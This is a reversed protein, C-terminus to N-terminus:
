SAIRRPSPGPSSASTTSTPSSRPARPAPPRAAVGRLPRWRTSCLPTRWRRARRTPSRSRVSSPGPTAFHGASGSSSTTAASRTCSTTTTLPTPSSLTSRATPLPSSPQRDWTSRSVRSRGTPAIDQHPRVVLNAIGKYADVVQKVTWPLLASAGDLEAFTWKFSFDHRDFVNRVTMRSAHWSSLMGNYDLGKDLAFALYLNLAKAQEPGIEAQAQAVVNRLEETATAATLLQRPTFMQRFLLIGHKQPRTDTGFPIEESPVLDDVEWRPLLREAEAGAASVADLDAQSPVRFQRGTRSTRTVSVALLMEGMSGSTAHHRIYEGGFTEGTWISTGVGRKYTSRSGWEHAAAGEVIERLVEGTAVDGVLRVAVDRGAKGRALWFDPALPTPRGTSPCPVTHAWIYGAISGDTAEKPFYPALRKEVRKAWDLGWREITRAFSPGLRAPLDVTANLIAIAVPNLENAIAACGYRAAEFPIAGGGAFPDLVVPEDSVDGRLAALRRILAITESGPTVTFARKYGYGGNGLREGTARAATIAQRGAVPDGLIGMARIFWAHYAEPGAPFESALEKRAREASPDAAADKASPWEPLLSAVVAARSATLPRRAWWVHLQSVPPKKAASADRLSEAGITAAPFWQEILPRVSM